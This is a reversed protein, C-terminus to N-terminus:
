QAKFTEFRKASELLHEESIGPASAHKYMYGRLTKDCPLQMLGMSRVAHYAAPSRSFISLAFFFNNVILNNIIVFIKLKNVL